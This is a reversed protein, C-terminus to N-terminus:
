RAAEAALRVLKKNFSEARTSGAFALIKPQSM